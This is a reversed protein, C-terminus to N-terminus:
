IVNLVSAKVLALLALALLIAPIAMLGDMVRMMIADLRRHFGTLLGLATGILLSTAAVTAGVLLSVRTGYVTRTYVDRGFNDTGFWHGAVPGTLREVPRMELPDGTWWAPAFIGGAAIVMLAVLGLVLTPQRRAFRAARASASLPEAIPGRETVVPPPPGPVDAGLVHTSSSM